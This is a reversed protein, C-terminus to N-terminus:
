PYQSSVYAVVDIMEDLTLKEVVANMQASKENVRVGNRFALLQRLLYTPSRGAIPPIQDTGKLNGLHCQTCAVTRQSNDVSSKGGLVLSKGRTLAGPPVYALYELRDDRREHRTLDQTVELLRGDLDETGGHEVYIWAAPEARPIRLQDIVYVRRKLKQQSFYKASDDIEQDTMAKAIKIMNQIPLYTEPGVAKRRGSRYDLLQERIYAEPLGALASNEPRGQGSPTHCFACAMVAPKRGHSVVEPMPGHSTPRWDPPDFPDNIRAQTFKETSDPIDLLPEAPPEAKPANPDPKVPKAPKEPAAPPTKPPLPFLWEPYELAVMAAAAPADAPKAPEAANLLSAAMALAVLSVETVFTRMSRM